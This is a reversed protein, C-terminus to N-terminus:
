TNSKYRAKNDLKTRKGLFDFYKKSLKYQEPKENKLVELRVKMIM